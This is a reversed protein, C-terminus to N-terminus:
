HSLLAQSVFWRFYLLIEGKHPMGILIYGICLVISATWKIFEMGLAKIYATRSIKITRLQESKGVGRALKKIYERTTRKEPIVHLVEIEPFYLINKHAKKLRNFLEKEEGGMLNDKSRGLSTNFLGEPLASRKIGMNAGIPYSKGKFICVKEGKNIASVWSYTWKGLWQPPTNNEFLPKIKGGFADTDPYAELYDALRQLYNNSIFSDDDLFVLVEGNSELIGRNRAYSLGQTSEIYYHYNVDPFDQYFRQCEKDTRDTSNNNILIIEYKDTPYTNKAIRSLTEYIFKDRNYTCVIVSIKIDM